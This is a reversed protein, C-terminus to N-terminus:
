LMTDCSKKAWLESTNKGYSLVQRATAFALANERFFNSMEVGYKLINKIFLGQPHM